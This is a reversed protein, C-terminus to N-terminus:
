LAWGLDQAGVSLDFGGAIVKAARQRRSEVDGGVVLVMTRGLESNPLHGLSAADPVVEPDSRMFHEYISIVPWGALHPMQPRSEVYCVAGLNRLTLMQGWVPDTTTVNASADWGIEM